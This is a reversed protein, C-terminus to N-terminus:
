KFMYNHLQAIYASFSDDTVAIKFRRCSVLYKVLHFSALWSGFSSAILWVLRSPESALGPLRALLPHVWSRRTFENRQM